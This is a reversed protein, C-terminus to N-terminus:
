RGAVPAPLPAPAPSPAATLAREWSDSGPDQPALPLACGVLSSSLALALLPRLMRSVPTKM